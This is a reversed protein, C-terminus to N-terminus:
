EIPTGTGPQARRPYLWAPSSRAPGCPKPRSRKRAEALTTTAPGCGALMVSLSRMPRGGSVRRQAAPLRPRTRGASTPEILQGCTMPSSYM